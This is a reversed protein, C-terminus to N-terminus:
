WCRKNKKCLYNFSQDKNLPGKKMNENTDNEKFSVKRSIIGRFLPNFSNPWGPTQQVNLTKGLNAYELIQSLNREGRKLKEFGKLQNIARDFTTETKANMDLELNHKVEFYAYVAEFPVDEKQAFDQDLFRLTPFRLKDYIIIDDGASNEYRDVVFGRCIGFSGPLIKQFLRCLAIEFEIGFDFNHNAEMGGFFCDIEKSLNNLLKNYM